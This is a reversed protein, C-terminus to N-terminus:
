FQLNVRGEKLLRDYKDKELAVDAALMRLLRATQPLKCSEAVRICDAAVWELLFVMAGAELKPPHPQMAIIM